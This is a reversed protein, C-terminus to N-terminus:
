SQKVFNIKWSVKWVFLIFLKSINFRIEHHRLYWYSALEAWFISSLEEVERFSVKAGTAM